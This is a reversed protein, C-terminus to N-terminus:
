QYDTGFGHFNGGSIDHPAGTVSALCNPKGELKLLGLYAFVLAEKFDVIRNDPVLVQAQTFNTLRELFFQNYAGGGTVLIKVDGKSNICEAIQAAAHEVFTRLKDETSKKNKKLKPRWYELYDELGLSKPAKQNLYNIQNLQELLTQDLEGAQALKGGDDYPLKLEEALDNLAMNFPCIDFAVRKGGEDYSINAIGGLNLAYHYDSFLDRDGIPVLPAGQGGALVDAERFNNIVPIGTVKWIQEGDGIQLTLQKEPQHLITHGHSAIFDPVRVEELFDNIQEGIYIGLDRSLIERDQDSWHIANALKQRVEEPYGITRASSLEFAWPSEIRERTFKVMALDLGDLSTGSMVGLVHYENRIDM